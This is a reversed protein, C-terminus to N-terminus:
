DQQLSSPSSLVVLIKDPSILKQRSSPFPSCIDEGVSLRTANFFIARAIKKQRKRPIAGSKPCSRVEVVVLVLEEDVDGEFGAGDSGKGGNGAM